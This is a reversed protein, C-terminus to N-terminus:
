TSVRHFWGQVAYDRRTPDAFKTWVFVWLRGPRLRSRRIWVARRAFGQDYFAFIYADLNRGAAEGWDCEHDDCNGFVRTYWNLGPPYPEGDLMQDQCVFRVEIRTLSQTDKDDNVWTGIEAPGECAAAITRLCAVM